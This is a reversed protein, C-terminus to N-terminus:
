GPSWKWGRANLRRVAEGVPVVMNQDKAMAQLAEPEPTEVGCFITTFNAARLLDLVDDYKAINLTAEFALSFPYGNRQQWAVIHPLLERLARRNGIFNDDVFYVTKVGHARLRDLEEVIREPTKLRPVRGYLGPIDCFECTFPCGSSFQVSALFYRQFDVLEYAPIPFADLPTRERTQFRLQRSPRACDRALHAFLASTADGLEGIHLIDPDPHNDPTSSVSPGGLVVTKAHAHARACIDGIQRRQVHMGSVFVADAWQLDRKSAPAINEDVFRAEFGQPLAAAIVLLGQPPMFARLGATVDFAYDFSGLSPEYRPFILLIRRNKSAQDDAHM